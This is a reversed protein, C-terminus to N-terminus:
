NAHSKRTSMGEGIMKIIEQERATVPTAVAPQNRTDVAGSFSGLRRILRSTIAASCIQEGRDISEIFGPLEHIAASAPIYGAAGAAAWNLVSEETESIAFVVICASPDIARIERVTDPGKPFLNDLLITAGSNNRIVSFGRAMNECLVAKYGFHREIVDAISERVLRVESLILFPRTASGSAFTTVLNDDVSKIM